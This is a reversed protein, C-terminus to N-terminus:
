FCPGTVLPTVRFRSRKGTCQKRSVTLIFAGDWGAGPLDAGFIALWGVSEQVFGDCHFIFVGYALVEHVAQELDSEIVKKGDGSIVARLPYIIVNLGARDVADARGVFEVGPVSAPEKTSFTGTITIL